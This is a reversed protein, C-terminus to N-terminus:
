SVSTMMMGTSGGEDMSGMMGVASTLQKLTGFKVLAPPSYTRGEGRKEVQSNSM